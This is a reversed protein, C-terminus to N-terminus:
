SLDSRLVPTRLLFAMSMGAPGLLGTPTRQSPRVLDPMPIWPVLLGRVMPRAVEDPQMLIAFQSTTWTGFYARGPDVTIILYSM